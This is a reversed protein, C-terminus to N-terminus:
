YPLDFFTAEGSPTIRGIQDPRYLHGSPDTPTAWSPPEAFVLVWVSGLVSATTRVVAGIKVPAPIPIQDAIAQQVQILLERSHGSLSLPSELMLDIANAVVRADEDKAFVLEYTAM